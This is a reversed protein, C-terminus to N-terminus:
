LYTTESAFLRLSTVSVFGLRQYLETALPSSHLVVLERGMEQAAKMAVVMMNSALGLGRAEPKTVVGYIGASERELYLGIKSIPQGNQWALWVRALADPKGIKFINLIERLQQRYSEPVGWRWAAFEQMERVEEAALAERIEVSPPLPPVVPLSDLRKVMGPAVEIEQLGRAVLRNPLDCPRSSPLVIWLFPVSRQSFHGVIRSIRQDIDKEVCFKLITNYPIIPLPTEFWLADGEDHLYCGPGHGFNSWMSWLNNEVARIAAKIQVNSFHDPQKM